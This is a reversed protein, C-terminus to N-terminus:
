RATCRSGFRRVQVFSSLKTRQTAHRLRWGARQQSSESLKGVLTRAAERPLCLAIRRTVVEVRQEGVALPLGHLGHM